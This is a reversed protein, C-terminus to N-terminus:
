SPSVRFMTHGCALGNGFCNQHSVSGLAVATGVWVPLYALSIRSRGVPNKWFETPVDRHLPQPELLRPRTRDRDSRPGAGGDARTGRAAAAPQSVCAALLRHAVQVGAGPSVGIDTFRRAIVDRASEVLDVDRRQKGRPRPKVGDHVYALRAVDALISLVAEEVFLRDARPEKSVHEFVLRQRLYSEPDSPGHSFRFPSDRRDIAAPEHAALTESVADPAVAFWECYDGRASLKQRSYTQGRNYYTVTNADAVFPDRGAHRIWVSERPFAFLTDSAPGSNAFIPNEAPCRWRGIRVLPSTFVEVDIHHRPSAATITM